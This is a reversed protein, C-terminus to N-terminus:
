NLVKLLWRRWSELSSLISCKELYGFRGRGSLGGLLLFLHAPAIDPSSSPAVAIADRVALLHRYQLPDPSSPAPPPPLLPQPM